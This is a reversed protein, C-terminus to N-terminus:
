TKNIGSITDLGSILFSEIPKRSISLLMSNKFPEAVDMESTYFDINM